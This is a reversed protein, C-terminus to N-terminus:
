RIDLRTGHELHAFPLVDGAKLADGIRKKDPERKEPIVREYEAPVPGWTEDLVVKPPNKKIVLSFSHDNAEIRTIGASEMCTKLYERIRIARAEMSQMRDTLRARVIAVSEAAAELNLVIAGIGAAKVSLEGHLGDLTDAVAQDDMDMEALALAAARYDAAIEYLAPVHEKETQM